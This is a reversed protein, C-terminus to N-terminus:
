LLACLEAKDCLSHHQGAGPPVVRYGDHRAPHLRDRLDRGRCIREPAVTGRDHVAGPEYPGIDPGQEHDGHEGNWEAQGDELAALAVRLLVPLQLPGALKDAIGSGISVSRSIM